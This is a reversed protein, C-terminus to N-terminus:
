NKDLLTMSRLLISLTSIAEHQDTPNSWPVQLAMTMAALGGSEKLERLRSHSDLCLNALTAFANAQIDADDPHEQMTKTVVEVVGETPIPVQSLVSGGERHQTLCALAQCAAKQLAVEGSHGGMSNAVAPIGGVEGIAVQTSVDKSMKELAVCAAIQIQPKDPKMEMARLMALLGGYRVINSREHFGKSAEQGLKELATEVVAIDPSWIDRRLLEAVFQSSETSICSKFSGGDGQHSSGDDSVTTDRTQETNQSGVVSTVDAYSLSSRPVEKEKTSNEIYMAEQLQQDQTGGTSGMTEDFTLQTLEDDEPKITITPYFGHDCDVSHLQRLQLEQPLQMDAFMRSSLMSTLHPSTLDPPTIMASPNPAHDAVTVEMYSESESLDQQEPQMHTRLSAEEKLPAPGQVTFEMYSQDDSSLGPQLADGDVTFEMYSQDDSAKNRRMQMPLEAQSLVKCLNPAVMSTPSDDHVPGDDVVTYEAFSQEDDYKKEQPTARAELSSVFSSAQLNIVKITKRSDDTMAGDAVSMNCNVATATCVTRRCNGTKYASTDITYESYSSKDDEDMHEQTQSIGPLMDAQGRITLEAEVPIEHIGDEASLVAQQRKRMMAEFLFFSDAICERAHPPKNDEGFPIGEGEKEEVLEAEKDPSLGNNTGVLGVTDGSSSEPLVCSRDMDHDSSCVIHHDGTFVLSVRKEVADRLKHRVFANEDIPVQRHDPSAVGKRGMAEIIHYDDTFVDLLRVQLQKMVRWAKVADQNDEPALASTTPAKINDATDFGSVRLLGQVKQDFLEEDEDSDNPPCDLCIDNNEKQLLIKERLSQIEVLNITQHKAISSASSAAVALPSAFCKAVSGGVSELDDDYQHELIGQFNHFGKSKLLEVAEERIQDEMMEGRSEEDEEEEDDGMIGDDDDFSQEPVAVNGFVARREQMRQKWGLTSQQTRSTGGLPPRGQGSATSSFRNIKVDTQWPHSKRGVRKAAPSATIITTNSACLSSLSEENGNCRHRSSGTSSSSDNYMSCSASEATSEMEMRPWLRHDKALGTSHNSGDMSGSTETAPTYLRCVDQTRQQKQRQDM